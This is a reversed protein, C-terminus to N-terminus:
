VQNTSRDLCYVPKGSRFLLRAVDVTGRGGNTAISTKCLQELGTYFINFFSYFIKFNFHFKGIVCHGSIEIPAVQKKSLYTLSESNIM